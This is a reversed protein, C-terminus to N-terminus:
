FQEVTDELLTYEIIVQRGRFFSNEDGWGFPTIEIGWTIGDVEDTGLPQQNAEIITKAQQSLDLVKLMATRVDKLSYSGFEFVVRYKRIQTEMSDANDIDTGEGGEDIMIYPYETDAMQAPADQLGVIVKKFDVNGATIEANFITELALILTKMKSTEAM